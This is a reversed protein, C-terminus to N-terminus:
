ICPFLQLRACPLCPPLPPRVQMRPLQRAHGFQGQVALLPAGVRGAGEMGAVKFTTKEPGRHLVQFSLSPARAFVFTCGPGISPASSRVHLHIDSRSFPSRVDPVQAAAVACSWRRLAGALGVQPAPRPRPATAHSLSSPSYLHRRCRGPRRSSTAADDRMSSSSTTTLVCHLRFLMAKIGVKQTGGRRPRFRVTRQWLSVSLATNRVPAFHKGNVITNITRSDYYCRSQM